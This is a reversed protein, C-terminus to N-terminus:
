INLLNFKASGGAPLECKFEGIIKRLALVWLGGSTTLNLVVSFGYIEERLLRMM